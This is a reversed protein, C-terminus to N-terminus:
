EHNTLYDIATQLLNNQSLLLNYTYASMEPSMRNQLTKLYEITQEREEKRGDEFAGAYAAKWEEREEAKGREYAETALNAIDQEISELFSSSCNTCKANGIRATISIPTLATSEVESEPTHQTM